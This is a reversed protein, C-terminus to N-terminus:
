IFTSYNPVSPSFAHDGQSLLYLSVLYPNVGKDSMAVFINALSAVETLFFFLM